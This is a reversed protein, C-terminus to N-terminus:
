SWRRGARVHWEGTLCTSIVSKRGSFLERIVCEVASLLIRRKKARLVREVSLTATTKSHFQRFLTLKWNLTCFNRKNQQWKKQEHEGTKRLVNNKLRINSDVRQPPLPIPMLDDKEEQDSEESSNLISVMTEIGMQDCSMVSRSRVAFAAKRAASKSNDQIPKKYHIENINVDENEDDRNLTLNVRSIFNPFTKRFIEFKFYLMSAAHVWLLLKLFSNWIRVSSFSLIVAPLGLPYSKKKAYRIVKKKRVVKKKAKMDDLNLNIPRIPASMIRRSKQFQARRASASLKSASNVTTSDEPSRSSSLNLASNSATTSSSSSSSALDNISSKVFKFKLGHLM